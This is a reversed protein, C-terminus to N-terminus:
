LMAQFSANTANQVPLHVFKKIFRKKIGSWVIQIPSHKTVNIVHLGSKRMMNSQTINKNEANAYRKWHVNQIMRIMATLKVFRIKKM